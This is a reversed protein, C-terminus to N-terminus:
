PLDYAIKAALKRIVTSSDKKSMEQVRHKLGPTRVAAASRLAVKRVGVDSDALATSLITGAQPAPLHRAAAAAAVRVEPYTSQAASTVVASSQATGILGALYAAKSALLPDNGMVLTQLHPLADPGLQRAAEPYDPEDPDLFSRVQDMTVPM